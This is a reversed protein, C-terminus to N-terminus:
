VLCGEPCYNSPRCDETSHHAQYGHKACAHDHGESAPVGHRILHDREVPTPPTFEPLKEACWECLLRGDVMAILDDDQVFRECAACDFPEAAVFLNTTM